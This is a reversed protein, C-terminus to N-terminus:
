KYIVDISLKDKVIPLQELWWDNDFKDLLALSDEISRNTEICIQLQEFYSEEYIKLIKLSLNVKGFFKEIEDVADITSITLFDNEIIFNELEILDNIEYFYHLLELDSNVGHSNNTTQRPIGNM